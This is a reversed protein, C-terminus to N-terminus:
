SFTVTEAWQFINKKIRSYDKSKCVFNCIWYEKNHEYIFHVYTYQAGSNTDTNIFYYYNGQNVLASAPINNQALIETGYDKLSKIEYGLKELDSSTEKKASFVVDDCALYLDFDNSKRETFDVSLTITLNDVSFNKPKGFCGSLSITMIIILFYIIYKSSYKFKDKFLSM